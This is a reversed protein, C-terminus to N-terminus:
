LPTRRSMYRHLDSPHPHFILDPRLPSKNEGGLASAIVSMSRKDSLAVAQYITKTYTDSFANTGMM